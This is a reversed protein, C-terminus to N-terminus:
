VEKQGLLAKIVGYLQAWEEEERPQKGRYEIKSLMIVEKNSLNHSQAFKKLSEPIETKGLEGMGLNLVNAIKKIVAFSPNREGREIESLYTRTIGAKKALTKQNMNQELRSSKIKAGLSKKENIDM